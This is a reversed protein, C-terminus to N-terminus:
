LIPNDIALMFDCVLISRGLGVQFRNDAQDLSKASPLVVPKTDGYGTSDVVTSIPIGKVAFRQFVQDREWQSVTQLAM